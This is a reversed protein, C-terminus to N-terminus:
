PNAVCQVGTNYVGPDSGDVMKCNPREATCGDDMIKGLDMCPVCVGPVDAPLLKGTEKNVCVAVGPICGTDVRYFGQDNYCEEGPIPECSHGMEWAGPLSGDKLTCVPTEPSCGFDVRNPGEQGIFSNVCRVCRSGCQLFQLTEKGRLDTCIPQTETCGEDLAGYEGSNMCKSMPCYNWQLNRHRQQDPLPVENLIAYESATTPALICLLSLIQFQTMM